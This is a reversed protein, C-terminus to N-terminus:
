HSTYKLFYSQRGRLGSAAAAAASTKWGRAQTPPLSESRSDVGVCGGGGGRGPYGRTGLSMWIVLHSSPIHRCQTFM